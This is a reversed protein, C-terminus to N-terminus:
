PLDQLRGARIDERVEEAVSALRGKESFDSDIQRDWAANDRERIFAALERLEDPSLTEVATKIETLSVAQPYRSRPSLAISDLSRSVSTRLCPM